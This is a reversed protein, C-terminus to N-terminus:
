VDIPAQEIVQHSSSAGDEVEPSCSNKRRGNGVRWSDGVVATAQHLWQIDNCITEVEITGFYKVSNQVPQGLPKLLGKNVLVPISHAPFGLIKATQEVNLRAPLRLPIQPFLGSSANPQRQPTCNSQFPPVPNVRSLGVNNRNQM